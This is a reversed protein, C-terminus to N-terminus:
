VPARAWDCSRAARPRARGGPPRSARQKAPAAFCVTAGPRWSQRQAGRGEGGRAIGCGRGTEGAGRWGAGEGGGRGGFGVRRRACSSMAPPTAPPSLLVHTAGKSRAFIRICARRPRPCPARAQPPLPGRDSHLRARPPRCAHASHVTCLPPAWAARQAPRWGRRGVSPGGAQPPELGRGRRRVRWRKGGRGQGRQPRGCVRAASAGERSPVSRKMHRVSRTGPSNLHTRRM